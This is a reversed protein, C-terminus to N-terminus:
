GRPSVQTQSMMTTNTATRMTPQQPEERMKLLGPDHVVLHRLRHMLTMRGQTRTSYLTTISAKTRFLMLIQSRSNLVSVLAYDIPTVRSLSFPPSSFERRMESSASSSSKKRAQSISLRPFYKDSELVWASCLLSPVQFQSTELYEKVSLPYDAEDEKSRELEIETQLKLTLEEDVIIILLHTLEAWFTVFGFGLQM